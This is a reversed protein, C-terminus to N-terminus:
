ASVVNGIAPVYGNVVGIFQNGNFYIIIDYHTNASPQFISLGNETVCDTGVWNIIGSGAYDVATPTEGSDFSLEYLYDEPYEGNDFNFSIASMIGFRVMYNNLFVLPVGWVSGGLPRAITPKNAKTNDVEGVKEELDDLVAQIEEMQTEYSFKSEELLRDANDLRNKLQALLTVYASVNQEAVEKTDGMGELVTISIIKTTIYNKASDTLAIELILEGPVAYFANKPIFVAKNESVVGSDSLVVGDARKGKVTFLKDSLDIQKGNDYFSFELRYAGVDGSVFEMDSTYLKSEQCNIKLKYTIM